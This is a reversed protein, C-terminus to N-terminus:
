QLTFYANKLSKVEAMYHSANANPCIKRGTDRFHDSISLYNTLHM